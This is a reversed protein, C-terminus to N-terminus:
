GIEATIEFSGTYGLALKAKLRFRTIRRRPMVKLFVQDSVKFEVEYKKPDAYSKQHSQIVKLREQIKSIKGTTEQILELGLIVRDEIDTWCLLSRCLRGYLVEYLVMGLSAEYSNNYAFEVLSLHNDWSGCFDLICFYLMEELIQ